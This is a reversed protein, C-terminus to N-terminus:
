VKEPHRQPNDSEFALGSSVLGSLSPLDHKHSEPCNRANRYGIKILWGHSECFLITFEDKAKGGVGGWFSHSQDDGSGM